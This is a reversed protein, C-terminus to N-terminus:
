HKRRVKRLLKAAKEKIVQRSRAFALDGDGVDETITSGAAILAGDGISIPAVLATNSGIFAEKGISTRYKNVGDYNCTITGAGINAAAGVDSDGIYSLHNVKAGADITSKKIEVFNGIKAAKGIKSGPRLRAYPGIIANAQVVSGEVHSFSKLEVGDEIEVGPGFVVNPHVVVDKGLKTDYSFFVTEPAILTAGNQMAKDRMRWQFIHEAEALQVRDNVGLVEEEDGEVYRCSHGTRVALEVIDTLYYEGKSNANSIKPLLTKLLESSVLMVGSNCLTIAKEDDSAERYEVIGTLHGANDVVLRGYEAPDDPTFGLVVVEAGKDAEARIRQLTEASTLPTDGYLVLVYKSNKSSKKLIPLAEKVAHATGLREKQIVVDAQRNIVAQVEEMEDGLVVINQLSSLSKATDLVHLVMPRSAIQHMVKPMNSKMRTGKGAALIVVATDSYTNKPM